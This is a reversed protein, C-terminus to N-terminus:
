RIECFSATFSAAIEGEDDGGEDSLEGDLRGAASREDAFGTIELEGDELSLFEVDDEFDDDDLGCGDEIGADEDWNELIREYRTEEYYAMSGSLGDGVEYTGREPASDGDDSVSLSLFNAGPHYLALAADALEFTPEKMDTCYDDFDFGVDEAAEEW